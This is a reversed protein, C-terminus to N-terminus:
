DVKPLLALASRFMGALELERNRNGPNYMDELAKLRFAFRSLVLRDTDSASPNPPNQRLYATLVNLNDTMSDNLNELGNATMIANETCTESQRLVSEFESFRNSNPRSAMYDDFTQCRYYKISAPSCYDACSQKNAAVHAQLAQCAEEFAPLSILGCAEPGPVGNPFERMQTETMFRSIPQPGCDSACEGGPTRGVDYTNEMAERTQLAYPSRLETGNKSFVMRDSVYMFGHIANTNSTNRSAIAGLDGAQPAEGEPLASCMPSNLYFEWEENSTARLMPVLGGMVLALNFCNPGNTGSSLSQYRRVHEPVCDTVDATCLGGGTDQTAPLTCQRNELGQTWGQIAQLDEEIESCGTSMVLRGNITRSLMSQTEALALHTVLLLTLVTLKKM